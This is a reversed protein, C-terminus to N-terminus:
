KRLEFVAGGSEALIDTPTSEEHGLQGFPKRERCSGDDGSDNPGQPVYGDDDEGAVLHSRAPKSQRNNGAMHDAKAEDQGPEAQLGATQPGSHNQMSPAVVEDLLEEIGHGSVWAPGFVNKSFEADSERDGNGSQGGIKPHAPRLHGLSLLPHTESRDVGSFTPSM